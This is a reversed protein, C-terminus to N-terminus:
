LVPTRAIVARFLVAGLGAMPADRIEIQTCGREELSAPHDWIRTNGMLGLMKYFLPGLKLYGQKLNRTIVNGSPPAMDAIMILGGPKVLGIAKDLFQGMVPAPFMNLFYNLCVADYPEDVEHNIADGCILVASVNKRTLQAQLRALMNSSLDIAHVDAGHRAAAVVDDGQGAGMYLVCDGKNIFELQARKSREIAGLSYVQALPRYVSAVLDYNRRTPGIEVPTSELESSDMEPDQPDDRTM